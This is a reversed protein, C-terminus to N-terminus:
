DEIDVIRDFSYGDAIDLGKELEGTAIDYIYVSPNEKEPNVGIYAKGGKVISRQSFTGECYPLDLATLKDSALDLVAYYCNFVHGWANAGTYEPDQIYLLAKGNNLCDVTVIKGKTDNYGKYSKDFDLAGKKIRVIDGYQASRSTAGVIKNNCAIYYDGNKDFFTKHQLLEGYATGAMFQARNEEVNKEVKMTEADIFAVFFHVKSYNYLYAYLIKGDERYNAIGSTNFKDKEPPTPLDLEGEGLIEMKDTDIKIWLIKSSPGNSGMLVLTHDDTWAHTYRRDKLTNNEFMLEKVVKIEGDIIQYKGFRDKEKPIQYYFKGKIISHQYMKATVDTGTGKFDIETGAELSNVGKVLQTNEKSMGSTGGISVWIDFHSPKLVEEKSNTPTDDDESCSFTTLGLLGLLLVFLYNKLTKM